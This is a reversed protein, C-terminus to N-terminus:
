RNLQNSAKMEASDICISFSQFRMLFKLDFNKHTNGWRSNTHKYLFDFPGWFFLGKQVSLQGFTHSHSHLQQTPLKTHKKCTPLTWNNRVPNTMATRTRWHNLRIAGWTGENKSEVNCQTRVTYIRLLVTSFLALKTSHVMEQRHM